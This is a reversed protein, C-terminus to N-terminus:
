QVRRFWKDLVPMDPVRPDFPTGAVGMGEILVSIKINKLGM